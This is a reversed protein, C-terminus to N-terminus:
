GESEWILMETDRVSVLRTGEPSFAVSPAYEARHAIRFLPGGGSDLDWVDTSGLAIAVALLEGDPSFALGYAGKRHPLTRQHSHGEADWVYVDGEADATVLRRGDPSFAVASVGKGWGSSAHRFSFLREGTSVAFMEAFGYTNGTALRTGDPSFALNRVWGRELRQRLSWDTTLEQCLDGTAADWVRVTRGGTGTAILAGDPSFALREIRRPHRVGCLPRGTAVDWTRLYRDAGETALLRGETSFDASWVDRHPIQQRERGDADAIVLSHRRGMRMALRLEGSSFGVARVRWPLTVTTLRKWAAPDRRRQPPSPPPPPPVTVTQRPRSGGPAPARETEVPPASGFGGQPLVTAGGGATTVVASDLDFLLGDASRMYLVPTGWELTTPLALRMSQRAGLVADDVSQQSALGKYFTAGFEIAVEDSVPYRMALVAPTGRRTLAGAVSSFPDSPAGRDTECANLVVLRLSPHGALMTALMEAGLHYAGGDEGVLAVTGEQAAEDYGGHGIFHLVHWPGRPQAPETEGRGNAAGTGRRPRLAAQLHRWSQGEVFGLEVKRADVLGALSERIRQQEHETQLPGQDDPRAIMCLVRLPSEVRLPRVPTPLQPYRVLPMALCLYGDEGTDYMFEWPLRALEPPQIRLVIRLRRGQQAARGRSATLLGRGDGSLLADFLARGLDRVPQEAATASRRLRASSKWLAEPVRALLEELEPKSPLRLDTTAEGDDPAEVIVQYGHEGRGVVRVRLDLDGM